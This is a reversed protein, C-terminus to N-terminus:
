TNTRGTLNLENLLQELHQEIADATEAYTDLGRGVPDDIDGGQRHLLLVRDAVEPIHRLLIDRHARTMTVIWDAEHALPATIQRSQHVDLSGGRRTIVELANKAAPEGDVANVGASGVFFGRSELESPACGLRQALQLRCLAEAMPSRCTNGTCVFVLVTGVLRALTDSTVAGHRLVNWSEGDLAVVTSRTTGDSAGESLIMDVGAHNALADLDAAPSREEGARRAGTLILPGPLLHNIDQVLSHRPCRLGIRNEPAVLRRVPAPLRSALGREVGGTVLLTLPGPWGRSTLRLGVHSLNPVWDRVEAAANLAIPMARPASLGKIQALRQVPEPHLASAALAYGTGTPLAVVGGQALCAVARHVVDRLDDAHELGIWEAATPRERM